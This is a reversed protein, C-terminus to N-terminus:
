SSSRSSTDDTLFIGNGISPSAPCDAGNFASPDSARNAKSAGSPKGTGSTGSSGVTGTPESFRSAEDHGGPRGQLQLPTPQGHHAPPGALDQREHRGHSAQRENRDLRDIRGIRDLRNLRGLRELRYSGDLMPRWWAENALYWRVTAELGQELAIRPKWGLERLLKSADLAYRADHGPRDEVHVILNEFHAIGQPRRDPALEDLLRCLRRVLEINAAPAQGAIHYSEGPRGKDLVLQLARVHDDVHIWDREQLGDGYLPLTKGELARLICLPILKEPFQRPGYNNTCSSVMCPLGFSRTWARVLHDSAAKTASYPSSPCYPSGEAAPAADKALDGYVEDTSVHLLRFSAQRESALNDWYARAAELLAFTGEVNAHLFARPGDISRDVHSEAALHLVRDPQVERFIARLTAEDAVDAQYFAFRPDAELAQLSLPNACYRLADVVAVRVDQVNPSGHGDYSGHGKRAALCAANGINGARGDQPCSSDGSCDSCNPCGPGDPSGPGGPWSLLRRVAASGIFGAGGTVLYTMPKSATTKSTMSM